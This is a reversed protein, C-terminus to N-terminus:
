DETQIKPLDRTVRDIEARTRAGRQFAHDAKATRRTSLVGTVDADATIAERPAGASSFTALIVHHLQEKAALHALQGPLKGDGNGQAARGAPLGDRTRPSRATGHPEGGSSFGGPRFAGGAGRTSLDV